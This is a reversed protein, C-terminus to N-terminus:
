FTDQHPGPTTETEWGPRLEDPICREIALLEEKVESRLRERETGADNLGETASAQLRIYTLNFSKRTFRDLRENVEASGLVAVRAELNIREPDTPMEPPDPPPNQVFAPNTRVLTLTWRKLYDAVDVYADRRDADTPADHALQRQHERDAQALARRLGQERWALAVGGVGVLGTAIVSVTATDMAVLRGQRDCRRLSQEM